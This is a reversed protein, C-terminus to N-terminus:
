RGMLLGLFRSRAPSWHSGPALVLVIAADRLVLAAGAARLQPALAPLRVLPILDWAAGACGWLIDVHNGSLKFHSLRGVRLRSLVENVM